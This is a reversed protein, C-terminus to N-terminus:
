RNIVIHQNFTNNKMDSIKYLYIGNKLHSVDVTFISSNIKTSLVKIGVSSYISLQYISNDNNDFSINSIDKAPNPYIEVSKEIVSKDETSALFWDFCQDDNDICYEELLTTGGSIACGDLEFLGNNNGVGEYHRVCSLGGELVKRETGYFFGYGVNEVTYLEEHLICLDGFSDGLNLSFDYLLYEDDGCWGDTMLAYVKRNEIDDRIAATYSVAQVRFPPAYNGNISEYATLYVKKYATNNIITDGKIEYSRYSDPYDTDDDDYLVLWKANEIALPVYEQAKTQWLLSTFLVILLFKTKM